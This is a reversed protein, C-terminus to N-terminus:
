LLGELTPEGLSNLFTAAAEQTDAASLMAGTKSNLAKIKAITVDIGSAFGEGQKKQTAHALTEATAVASQEQAYVDLLASLRARSLHVQAIIAAALSIRRADEVAERKKAAEYRAPATILATLSQVLSASFSAWRNDELFENSDYNRAYFLKIGPFTKAIEMRTERLSINRQAISERMEPRKMLAKDELAEIDQRLLTRAKGLYSEPSSTLHMKTEPAISLLSKLEMEALSLNQRARKLTILEAELGQRRQAAQGPSLLKEQVALDIAKLQEAANRELRDANKNTEQAAYARWYAGYVDRQINQVVKSHREQAILAEDEASNAQMAALVVDIMNWNVSLDAVRRYQEASISPELSQNGSIVSQSSAAGLNSRGQYGASATVSPLAKLQEITINKQRALVEIASVRADFNYVLARQLADNLSLSVPAGHKSVEDIQDHEAQVLEHHDVTDLQVVQKGSCGAMGLM